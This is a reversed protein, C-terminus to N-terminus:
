EGFGEEDRMSEIVDVEGERLGGDDGGYVVVVMVIM